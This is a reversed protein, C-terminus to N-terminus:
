ALSIVPSISCSAAFWPSHPRAEPLLSRSYGVCCAPETAKSDV